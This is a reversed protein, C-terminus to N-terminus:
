KHTITLALLEQYIKQDMTAAFKRGDKLECMAFVQKRNGGLVVGALLGAPGFILSGALGWAAMEPLKKISDETHMQISKLEDMSIQDFAGWLIGSEYKWESQTLDGGVVKVTNNAFMKNFNLDMAFSESTRWKYGRRASEVPSAFSGPVFAQGAPHATSEAAQPRGPEENSGYYPGL